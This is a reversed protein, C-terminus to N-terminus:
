EELMFKAIDFMSLVGILKGSSDLVPLKRINNVVMTKLADQLTADPPITILDQKVIMTKVKLDKSFNPMFTVKVLDFSSIVGKPNGKLDVVIVSHIRSKLMKEAARTVPDDELVTIVDRHMINEVLAKSLDPM